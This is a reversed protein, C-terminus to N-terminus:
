FVRGGYSLYGDHCLFYNTMDGIDYCGGAIRRRRQEGIGIAAACLGSFFEIILLM